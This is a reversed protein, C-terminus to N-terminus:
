IQDEFDCGDCFYQDIIEEKYEFFFECLKMVNRFIDSDLLLRSVNEADNKLEQFGAKVNAQCEYWKNKHNELYAFDEEDRPVINMPPQYEAHIAKLFAEKRRIFFKVLYDRFKQRIVEDEVYTFVPNYEHDNDNLDKTKVWVKKNIKSKKEYGEVNVINIITEIQVEKYFYLYKDVSNQQLLSNFSMIGFVNFLVCAYQVIIDNLYEPKEIYSLGKCFNGFHKFYEIDLKNMRIDQLIKYNATTCRALQIRQINEIRRLDRINSNNMKHTAKITEKSQLIREICWECFAEKNDNMKNGTEEEYLTTQDIYINTPKGDIVRCFITEPKYEIFKDVISHMKQLMIDFKNESTLETDFEKRIIDKIEDHQLWNNPHITKFISFYHLEKEYNARKERHKLTQLHSKHHSIQDPKTNCISCFYSTNM